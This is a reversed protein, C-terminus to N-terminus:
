FSYFATLKASRSAGPVSRNASGREIYKEDTANAVNIRLTLNENVQYSATADLLWYSAEPPAETTSSYNQSGSHVGGVGLSVRDTLAYDLWLNFSSSPAFALDDGVDAFNEPVSLDTSLQSYGAYLSMAETINGSLGLEFGEVSQKGLTTYETGRGGIRARANDKESRFVAAAFSARNEFLGWKTGLEVTQTEEPDLNLNSSSSVSESLSFNEATPNFSNGMGVYVSGERTPKFVLGGRYSFMEDVRSIDSAVVGETADVYNADFREWRVGASAKWKESLAISDFLALALSDAEGSRVRGTRDIPTASFPGDSYPDRENREVNDVNAHSFNDAEEKNLELSATFSHSIDGTRLLGSLTTNNSLNRTLKDKAKESTRIFGSTDDSPSSPATYIADQKSEYLSTVNRLTFGNDMNHGIALSVRDNDIKAFDREPIGYFNSTEVEPNGFSGTWLGYDSMDDQKLKEYSFSVQTDKGLGFSLSPNLAYSSKYVFDRGAIDEDSYMGVLRFAIGRESDIEHNTDVVLRQQNHTGVSATLNTANGMRAQKTVLNISGGTSGRGYTASSPGKSVEVQEVNYADRSYEGRDRVGNVFIDNAASFGRVFLNDGPASGGEGARFTIGPSNRLVDQLSTAGQNELIEEPIINISQATDRLPAKFKPSSLAFNDGKVTFSELEVADSDNSAESQAQLGNAVLFTQAIAAARLGHRSVSEANRNTNPMM